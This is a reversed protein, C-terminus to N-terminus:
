VRKFPLLSPNIVLIASWAPGCGPVGAMLAPPITLLALKAGPELGTAGPVITAMKPVLKVSPAEQRGGEQLGMNPLSPRSLVVILPACTITFPVGAGM